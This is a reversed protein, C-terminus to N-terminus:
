VGGPPKPQNSSPQPVYGGGPQNPAGVPASAPPAAMDPSRQAPARTAAPAPSPAPTPGAPPATGPAAAPKSGPSAPDTPSGEKEKSRWRPLVRVNQATAETDLQSTFTAKEGPALLDASLQGFASAVTKGGEGVLEITVGVGEVSLDGVNQVSGTVTTGSAGKKASVNSVVVRGDGAAKKTGTADLEGAAVDQDTLVVSAKKGDRTANAADVLSPPRAVVPTPAPLKAAEAAKAAAAATKGTDIESAPISVLTGDALLLVAQRGRIQPPKKTDLTRGDKLVVQGAALPGATLSVLGLVLLSFARRM